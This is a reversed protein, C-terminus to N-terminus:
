GPPIVEASARWTSGTVLIIATTPSLRRVEDALWLGSAGPLHVDLLAVHPQKPLLPMAAEADAAILIQYGFGSMARVIVGQVNEEDEVILVWPSQGRPKSLATWDM